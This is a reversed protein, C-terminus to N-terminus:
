GREELPNRSLRPWFDGGPRDAMGTPRQYLRHAGCLIGPCPAWGKGTTRAIEEAHAELDDAIKMMLKGRERAPVKKWAEFAKAAAQVARGVDESGARPIEAIVSDRWAPNEVPLFQGDVSGTWQGDILMLERSMENRKRENAEQIMAM